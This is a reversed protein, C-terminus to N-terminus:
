SQVGGTTCLFGVEVTATELASFRAFFQTFAESCSLISRRLVVAVIPLRKLSRSVSSISRCNGFHLWYGALSEELCNKRHLRRSACHAVKYPSRGYHQNIGARGCSPASWGRVEESHDIRRFATGCCDAQPAHPLPIYHEIVVFPVTFDQFLVAQM